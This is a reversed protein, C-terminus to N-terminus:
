PAPEALLARIQEVALGTAHALGYDSMGSRALERIAAAQQDRTLADYHRRHADPLIRPTGESERAAQDGGLDARDQAGL